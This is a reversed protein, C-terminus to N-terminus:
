RFLERIPDGAIPLPRNQLDYVETRPDIGLARYLTGAINEPKVPRDAPYEGKADSAGYVYGAKMGGGALLAPYVEPWHDRGADGNIKPTRGFEGMWLVLTDDLLGRQELDRILTPVAQDTTPLLKNKMEPFHDKHTDWIFGGGPNCYYVTVIRVGAEVLRRALLCSQGYMTRGYENRLKEPERSLDFAEKVKPSSLMAFAREHYEGLGKATPLKELLGAQRDISDLLSKRDNLREPTLSQPLRLEPLKFDASNPDQLILLPDHKKGLFSAHQGPVVSGDRISAPLAVFTPIEKPAPALYDIVSGYHPFLDPTDRLRQDDLPPAHGTIAYYGPPNHNRFTHTLSRVVTFRDMVQAFRPLLECVDVEPLTSRIPKFQGRSDEPGDPKMDFTELHSPGGWQMLFIVSKATAPPGGGAKAAAEARLLGPLTLGLTGLGGATLLDRRSMRRAEWFGPCASSKERRQM